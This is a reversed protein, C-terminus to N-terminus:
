VRGLHNAQRVNQLNTHISLVSTRRMKSTLHCEEMLEIECRLMYYANSPNKIEELMCAKVLTNDDDPLSNIFIRQYNDWETYKTNAKGCILHMFVNYIDEINICMTHDPDMSYNKMKKVLEEHSLDDNTETLDIPAFWAWYTM